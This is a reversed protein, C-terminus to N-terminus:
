FTLIPVNFVIGINDNVKISKVGFNEVKNINYDADDYFIIEEKKCKTKDIIEQIMEDKGTYEQISNEYPNVNRKEYIIHDFLHSIEMKDLYNNPNKNHTAICLIKNKTKLKELFTKVDKHYRDSYFSNVNHLYLTNDLDFVFVKYTDYDNQKYTDDNQKYTDDNQKYINDDQKYESSLNLKILKDIVQQKTKKFKNKQTKKTKKSKINSRKRKNSM